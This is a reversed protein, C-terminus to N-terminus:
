FPQQYSEADFTKDKHFLQNLTLKLKRQKKKMLKTLTKKMKRRKLLTFTIFYLTYVNNIESPFIIESLAVRWDGDLSINQPLQNKFAALTNDSFLELSATSLLHVEFEDM